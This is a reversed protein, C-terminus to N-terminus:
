APPRPNSDRGGRWEELNVVNQFMSFPKKYDYRLNTGNLRPNSLVLSIIERKEDPTMDNFLSSAERALEMLHIGHNINDTNDLEFTDLQQQIEIMEDSWQKNKAEWMQSDIRGDLFHDYATSQRHSLDNYRKKLQVQSAERTIREDKCDKELQHRTWEIVDKPIRIKQLALKVQEEIDEERVYKRDPCLSKGNTCRYYIYRGKKKEGTISCGCSFCKMSGRYAIELKTKSPKQNGPRMNAQVQDWLAKTILPEHIGKYTEGKWKFYGYYFDSKLIRSITSVSIPNKARKSRLGMAHIEKKLSRLSHQGTAALRFLEQILPGNHPHVQITHDELRNVYGLPAEGPWGGQAVKETMGKRVEESLNNVYFHSVALDLDHHLIEYSKSDHSITKGIKAFHITPKKSHRQLEIADFHNRYLRDVKEAVINKCSPTKDLFELMKRFQKRGAQKATEAETFERVVNLNHDKAYQRMLKLQAPISYGEREQDKSSVRAYLVTDQNM